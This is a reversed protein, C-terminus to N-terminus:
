IKIKWKVIDAEKASNYAIFIIPGLIFGFIGLLKLGLFMGILTALPSLGLHQGMLKPEIIRRLALLIIALIALKTGLVTDGSLFMFLSWPGLVIISGIIPILDIIWIVLSMVFAVKPFIFFLGILSSCFIILSVLLQAKLFGSFVSTLRKNMFSVKQQTEPTFMNFLKVKLRPLDLMFLFLSILYVIFSILYQPIKSFLQAINDLTIKEKATNGLNNLNEEFSTTIQTVFEPPLSKSYHEIQGEINQYLHNLINLYIPMDEVFHVIQSVSFTIMYTGVTGITILFTLFVIIVSTQRGLPFRKQLFNM